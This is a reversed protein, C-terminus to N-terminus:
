GGRRNLMGVTSIGSGLQVAIVAFPLRPVCRIPQEFPVSLLTLHLTFLGKMETTDDNSPVALLAMCFM